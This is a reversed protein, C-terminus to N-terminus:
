LLLRHCFGMTTSDSVFIRSTVETCPVQTAISSCWSSPFIPVSYRKLDLLWAVTHNVRYNAHWGKKKNKLVLMASKKSRTSQKEFLKSILQGGGAVVGTMLVVSSRVEVSLQLTRAKMTSCIDFAYTPISFYTRCMVNM